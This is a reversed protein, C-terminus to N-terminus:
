FICIKMTKNCFSLITIKPAMRSAVSCDLPRFGCTGSAPTSQVAVLPAKGPHPGRVRDPRSPPGTPARWLRRRTEWCKGWCGGMRWRCRARPGFEWWGEVTWPSQRARTAGRRWCSHGPFTDRTDARRAAPFNVAPHAPGSSGPCRAPRAGYRRSPM